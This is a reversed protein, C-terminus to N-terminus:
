YVREKNLDILFVSERLEVYIKDIADNRYWVAVAEVLDTNVYATIIDTLMGQGIETMHVISYIDEAESIRKLGDIRRVMNASYETVQELEEDYSKVIHERTAIAGKIPSLAWRLWGNHRLPAVSLTVPLFLFLLTQM